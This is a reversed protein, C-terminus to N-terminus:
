AFGRDFLAILFLLRFLFLISLSSTGNDATIDSFFGAPSSSQRVLNSRNGAGMKPQLSDEFGASNIVGFSGNFASGGSVSTDMSNHSHLAHVQQAENLYMMHSSGNSYRNQEPISDKEEQKMVSRDGFQHLGNSGSHDPGNCQSAFRSLMADVEPSSPRAYRYDGSGSGGGSHDLFSVLLSSPASHYRMLGSSQQPQQEQQQQQQQQMHFFNSDMFAQQNKRLEVEPIIVNSTYMLSM